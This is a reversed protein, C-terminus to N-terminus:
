YLKKKNSNNYSSSRIMIVTNILWINDEKKVLIKPSVLLKFSLCGCFILMM